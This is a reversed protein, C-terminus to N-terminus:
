KVTVTVSASGATYGKPAFIVKVVKKGKGTKVTLGGDGYANSSFSKVKKGSVYVTITGKTNPSGNIALKVNGKGVAKATVKVSAKKPVTVSVTVTASSSVTTKAYFITTRTVYETSTWDGDAAATAVGVLAYAVTTGAPKAYIEVTSNPKAHGTLQVAGAGARSAPASITTRNISPDVTITATDQYEGHAVTLGANDLWDDDATANSTQGNLTATLTATGDGNSSGTLTTSWVGDASTTVSTQGLAAITSSGLSLNVTAGSVPQNFGNKVEGSVVSTGGPEVASDIAVIKWPDSAQTVSVDVTKTATGSTVTITAAGAKTFFAYGTYTGSGNSAVTVSTALDDTTATTPTAVNSFYVGPTGTLTVSQYALGGSSANLVSGTVATGAVPTLSAKQQTPTADTVPATITVSSATESSAWNIASDTGDVDVTADYFFDFSTTTGATPTTTPTYTYSFVGNSLAANGATAGGAPIRVAVQAADSGSPVFPAGFQDLLKGTLVASSGPTVLLSASTNTNEFESAAVAQYTGTLLDATQNGSAMSVTYTTGATTTGSSVKLKAVGDADTVASYVKTTSTSSVLTGDATLAPSNTGKTLTFYVTKGSDDGTATVTGKYTVEAVGAKVYVARPDTGSADKVSGTVNTVDEALATVSNSAVTTNTTRTIASGIAYTTSATGATDSVSSTRSIYTGGFSISGPADNVGTDAGDDPGNADFTITSAAALAAGLAGVSPSGSLGRTDETTLGTSVNATITRGIDISSEVSLSPSLDDSSDSSTTGNVDKVNLTFTPTADDQASDYAGNVNRDKFFRLTYTGPATAALYVNDTNTSNNYNIVRQSANVKVPAFGVASSTIEEVFSGVAHAYVLPETLTVTTGSVSSVTALESTTEDTIWINDSAALAAASVASSVTVTTAGASAAAISTGANGLRFVDEGISHNANTAGVFTVDDGAVATLQRVEGNAATSGEIYVWDGVAFGTGSTLTLVTQTDGDEATTTTPSAAGLSYVAKGSAHTYVLPSSLTISTSDPVTAVVSYETQGAAGGVFVVADGVTFGSSSTLSITTQGAAEAGSLTTGIEYGLNGATPTTNGSKREYKVAGGTPGSLVQMRLPDPDAATAGTVKLGYATAANVAGDTVHAPDLNAITASTNTPGYALTVGAASAPTVVFFSAGAAVVATSCALALTRRAGRSSLNM